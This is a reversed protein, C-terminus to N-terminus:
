QAPPPAGHEGGVHQALHAEGVDGVEFGAEVGPFGGAEGDFRGGSAGFSGAGGPPSPRTLPRYGSEPRGGATLGERVGAREGPPSPLVAPEHRAKQREPALDSCAFSTPAAMWTSAWRAAWRRSTTPPATPTSPRRVTYREMFVYTGAAEDQYLAYLKCGPENANVKAVLEKAVTEFEKEMGAKVKITAVVGLM